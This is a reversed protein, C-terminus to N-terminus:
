VFSCVFANMICCPFNIIRKSQSKKLNQVYEFNLVTNFIHIFVHNGNPPIDTNNKNKLTPDKDQWSFCSTLTKM